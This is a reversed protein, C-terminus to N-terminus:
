VQRSSGPLYVVPLVVRAVRDELVRVAV